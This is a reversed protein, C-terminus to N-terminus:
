KEFDFGPFDGAVAPPPKPAPPAAAPRRPQPLPEPGAEAGYHPRAASQKRMMWWALGGAATLGLVATAAVVVMMSPGGGKDAKADDPRAEAKAAPKAAVGKPVPRAPPFPIAGETSYTQAPAGDPGLVEVRTVGVVAEGTAPDVREVKCTVRAPRPSQSPIDAEVRALVDKTTFFRLNLPEVSNENGVKLLSDGGAHSVGKVVANVTIATDRYRDPFRNVASLTSEGSPPVAEAKMASAQDGTPDLFLVEEVDFPHRADGGGPKRVTGRVRVAFKYGGEFPGGASLGLDFIQLALDKPVVVLLNPPPQGSDTELALEFVKPRVETVQLPSLADLQLSSGLSKEPRANVESLSLVGSPTKPRTRTFFPLVAGSPLRLRPMAGRRGRRAGDGREGGGAQGPGHRRPGGAGHRRGGGGRDAGVVGEPRRRAAEAQGLGREGQAELPVARADAMLVVEGKPAGDRTNAPTAKRVHATVSKVTQLPDIVDVELRPNEGESAPPLLRVAGAAASCPRCRASPSPSGSGRRAAHPRGRRHAQRRGVSGARRQQGPEAGRCRSAPWRGWRANKPLSSVSGQGITIEPNKDGEALRSGFPFGCVFVPMTENLPPPDSLDLPKPPDKVDAVELVALDVDDAADFAVVKAKGKRETATGSDFVVEVSGQPKGAAPLASRVVHHNTVVYVTRGDVRVVFGSGSGQAIKVFVTAPKIVALQEASLGQGWAPAAAVLWIALAAAVRPAPPRVLRPM